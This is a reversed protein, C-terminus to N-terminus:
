LFLNVPHDELAGRPRYSCSHKQQPTGSRDLEASSPHLTTRLNAVIKWFALHIKIQHSISSLRCLLLDLSGRSVSITGFTWHVRREKPFNFHNETLSFLPTASPDNLFLQFTTTQKRRLSNNACVKMESQRTHCVNLPVSLARILQYLLIVVTEIRISLDLVISYRDTQRSQHDVFNWSVRLWTSVPFHTKDLPDLIM